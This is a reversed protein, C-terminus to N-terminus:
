MLLNFISPQGTILGFNCSFFHSFTAEIWTGFGVFFCNTLLFESNPNLRNQFKFKSSGFIMAKCFQQYKQFIIHSVTYKREKLCGVMTVKHAPKCWLCFFCLSEPYCTKSSLFKGSSYHTNKPTWASCFCRLHFNRSLFFTHLLYKQSLWENNTQKQEM